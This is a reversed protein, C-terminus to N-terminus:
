KRQTTTKYNYYYHSRNPESRNVIVGIPKAKVNSLQALAARVTGTRTVTRLVVFAFSDVVSALMDADSVALVAPADFIALDFTHSLQKILKQMNESGLLETPNEPLPGSPLVQIGPIECSQVAEEFTMKYELVSSLGVNNEVNFLIHQRPVRLDADVVIVKQGSQAMAYALKAVITSKGEGPEASTILLTRLHDGMSHINTRLRRYAEGSAFDSNLGMNFKRAEYRPIKGITPLSTATEIQETSYLTSDLNEFLFVLGFGGVLGTLFGLGINLVKRPKAPKDPPIAPEVVSVSKARVAEKLRSQEYQELISAYMQQELDLKQKAAQIGETDGPNKAVLDMYNTRAQNVENEMTSLQESLIEQSSKGSGTYLELSQNM